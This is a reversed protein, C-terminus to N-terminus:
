EFLREIWALFASCLSGYIQLDGRGIAWGIRGPEKRTALWAYLEARSKKKTTFKIAEPPIGRIYRKALCWAPDNTPIMERVFDELEGPRQNDPMLWVGVRPQGYVIIGDPPRAEPLKVGVKGLRDSIADWCGGLDDDADAVIGLAKRGPAKIGPSIADKLNGIGEKNQIAFSPKSGHRRKWLERVVHEDDRGEVFLVKPTEDM